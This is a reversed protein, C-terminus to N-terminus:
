ATLWAVPWIDTGAAWSSIGAGSSDVSSYWIGPYGSSLDTDTISFFVVNNKSCRMSSGIIEIKLSDGNAFVPTTGTTATNTGNVYKIWQWGAQSGSIAYGSQTSNSVRIAPGYGAYFHAATPNSLVTSAWQNTLSGSTTNYYMDDAALSSVLCVNSTIRFNAPFVANGWPSSLPGDARTFNDTALVGM